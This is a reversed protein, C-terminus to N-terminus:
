QYTIYEDPTSKKHMLHNALVGAGIAGAGIAVHKGKVKSLLGKAKELLGPTHKAVNTTAASVGSKSVDISAHYGARSDKLATHLADAAANAKHGGTGAFTSSGAQRMANANNVKGAPSAADAIGHTAKHEALRQSLSKSLPDVSTDGFTKALHSSSIRNANANRAKTAAQMSGRHSSVGAAARAGNGAGADGTVALYHNKQELNRLLANKAVKELM